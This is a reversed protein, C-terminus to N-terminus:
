EDARQRPEWGRVLATGAANLGFYDGQIRTGATGTGTGGEKADGAFM